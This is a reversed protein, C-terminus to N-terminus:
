KKNLIRKVLHEIDLALSPETLYAIPLLYQITHEAYERQRKKKWVDQMGLLNHYRDACKVLRVDREAQSIQSYYVHDPKEVWHDLIGNEPKFVPEVKSLHLIADHVKKGFLRRVVGDPTLTDETLDHLLSKIVLPATNFGRTILILSVGRVHEFYRIPEESSDRMQGRHGNKALWYAIEVNKLERATLHTLLGFFEKRNM